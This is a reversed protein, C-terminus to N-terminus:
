KMDYLPLRVYTDAYLQLYLYIFLVTLAKSTTVFKLAM